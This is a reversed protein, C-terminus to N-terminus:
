LSAAEVLEPEDVATAARLRPSLGVAVFGALMSFLAGIAWIWRGGLLNAVPGAVAMAPGLVAYTVSMALTFARGRFSDPVGRQILLVNYLAAAGSGVGSVVVPLTAIWVNPAGSAILTGIGALIM